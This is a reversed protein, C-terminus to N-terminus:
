PNRATIIWAAADMVVGQGTDHATLADRLEAAIRSTVTEDAGSEKIARSAPGLQMLFEIAEELDGGVKFSADFREASSDAFGADTLVRAVREPDGLSFPGPEEPAPPPPLTVHNAVVELPRHVWANDKVPRWCIFAARGGPKLAQRINGFAAEPDDFFMVGFRSFFIDYSGAEFRHTQADGCEFSINKEATSQARARARALILESIDIGHVRGDPGVRRAMDLSTDGCGCGVELVREGAKLSAAEMAAQGFPKLSADLREHFSVWRAGGDGNWYERMEANVSNDM